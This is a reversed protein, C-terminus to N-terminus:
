HIESGDKAKYFTSIVMDDPEIDIEKRIETKFGSVCESLLFKESENWLLCDKNKGKIYGVDRDTRTFKVATLNWQHLGYYKQKVANDPFHRLYIWGGPKCVRYMEKIAKFPDSCHDLANVSHVIDFKEDEYTLSAMDQREVPFLPIYGGWRKQKHKLNANFKDALIDSPYLKIKADPWTNGTTSIVGAGLDAISVLAKDGIMPAFYSHLPFKKNFSAFKWRSKKHYFVVTAKIGKRWRKKILDNM